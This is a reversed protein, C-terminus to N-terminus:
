ESQLEMASQEFTSDECVGDALANRARISFYSPYWFNFVFMVAAMPVGDFVYLYIQHRIITGEFGEVFEVVRVISRVMIAASTIYLVYLFQQWPMSLGHSKGSLRKRLRLHFVMAVAVFFGFIIIQLLLGALVIRSGLRSQSPNSSALLGAGGLQVFFTVVDSTVFVTTLWRAKILCCSEGDASVVIRVLVMYISAAFLAPAVLLLLTQIVYPALTLNPAQQHSVGRAAYGVIEFIGGTILPVFYWTRRRAVLILHWVTSLGFLVAFVCTGALSPDYHYYKYYPTSGSSMTTTAAAAAPAAAAKPRSPLYASCVRQNAAM